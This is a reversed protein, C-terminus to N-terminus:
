KAALTWNTGDCYALVHFLGGGTIIAGWTASMSDTVAAEMGETGPGCTPLTSFIGATLQIPVKFVKASSTLRELWNQSIGNGIQGIYNTISVPSGFALPAVAVGYGGPPGDTGIWTDDLGALPRYGETAQTLSPQSDVLTIIHHPNLDINPASSFNLRGKSVTMGGGTEGGDTMLTATQNPVSNNFTTISALCSTYGGPSATGYSSCQKTMQLPNGNLGLGVANSAEVDVNLSRNVSVVSGPWFNLNGSYDGQKIPYSSPSSSGSDTYSCVLGTCSAQLFNTKISGCAGYVGGNCGGYYPYVAGVGIPTAVRIVDYTIADTENAIRPWQVPILDNGTSLWNLVQMPSTQTQLGPNTVCNDGSPCDNAVVFYSYAYNSGTLTATAAHSETTTSASFSISTTSSGTVIANTLNNDSNTFGTITFKEGLLAGSGGYTISGQYVGTGNVSTLTFSPQGSQFAGEMTGSGAIEFSAAGTSQGAILGAIGLGPFPTYVPSAPNLATSSESYINKLYAGQYNGTTNSSYVQWLGSAQIVTNEIYLGNSNYDTVGNSANATISSDRLTIVPAVQHSQNGASFVFSGTWEPNANLRIGNNNFHDIACNEDDWLDFFNNFHGFEGVFDYQIDIFHSGQGNDLVAEYALAVVGPTAQSGIAVGSHLYQFTDGTPNSCGQAIGCVVADGWYASSDTFMITVIDGVRFNHATSTSLLRGAIAATTPKLASSTAIDGKPSFSHAPRVKM